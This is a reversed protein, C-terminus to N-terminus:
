GPVLHYKCLSQENSFGSAKTPVHLLVNGGVVCVTSSIVARFAQM